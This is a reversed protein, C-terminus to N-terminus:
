PRTDPAPFRSRAARRPARSGSAGIVLSEIWMTGNISQPRVSSSRASLVVPIGGRVRTARTPELSAPPIEQRAAPM